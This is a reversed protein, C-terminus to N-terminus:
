SSHSLYVSALNRQFVQDMRELILKRVAPPTREDDEWDSRKVVFWVRSNSELIKIVEDPTRVQPSGLFRNVYGHDSRILGLGCANACLYYFHPDKGAVIWATTNANLMADGGHWHSGVFTYGDLQGDSQGAHSNRLLDPMVSPILLAVLVVSILDTCWRRVDGGDSETAAHRLAAAASFGQALKVLGAAGLLFCPGLLALGYGTQQYRFLGLAILAAVVMVALAVADRYECNDVSGRRAPSFCWTWAAVAVAVAGLPVLLQRPKDALMFPLYRTATQIWGSLESSPFALMGGQLDASQALGPDGLRVLALVAASGALVLGVPLILSRLDFRRAWIVYALAFGPLFLLSPPQVWCTVVFALAAAIGSRGACGKIAASRVLLLTLFMMLPHLSYQRAFAGWLVADPDLAWALAAAL